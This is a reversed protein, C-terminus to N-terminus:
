YLFELSKGFNLQTEMYKPAMKKLSKVQSVSIGKAVLPCVFPDPFLNEGIMMDFIDRAKTVQGCVAYVHLLSNFTIVDPKCGNMKRM